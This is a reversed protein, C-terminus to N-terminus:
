WFSDRSRTCPARCSVLARSGSQGKGSAPISRGWWGWGCVCLQPPSTLLCLLPSLEMVGAKPGLAGCAEWGTQRSCSRIGARRWTTFPAPTTAAKMSSAAPCTPSPSVSTLWIGLFVLTPHRSLEEHPCLSCSQPSQCPRPPELPRSCFRWDVCLSLSCLCM